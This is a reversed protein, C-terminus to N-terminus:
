RGGPYARGDGVFRAFRARAAEASAQREANRLADARAQAAYLTQMQLSQKIGLGALQNGAQQAQLAGVAGSSATMLTALTTGDGQITQVIKAQALLTQRLAEYTNTWRAAADQAIRDSSVAGAYQRPYLNNFQSTATDVKFSVGNAQTILRNIEDLNTKLQGAVSVPLSTVNRTSNILLMAQNGLSRIQNNIQDLARAATLINQSYNSPDFVVAQARAPSPVAIAIAVAIPASLVRCRPKRFQRGIIDSRPM